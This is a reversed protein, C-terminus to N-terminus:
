RHNKKFFKSKRQASITSRPQDNRAVRQLTNQDNMQHQQTIRMQHLLGLLLMKNAKTPIMFMPPLDNQPMAQV